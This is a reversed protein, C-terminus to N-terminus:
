RGLIRRAAGPGYKADFQDALAPNQQLMQVAAPPVNGADPTAYTPGADRRMANIVIERNKRKQELVTKNDGPQPFYQKNANDFEEPSIVAGSERRLQANIFDRRAQDFNQFDNSVMWNEAFDPIWANGRINQSWPDLGANGYKSLNGESQSMRDAFGAAKREDITAKPETIPIMGSRPAPSSSPGGNPTIPFKQGQANEGFVGQPTMFLIEGNPGTVTKGAGLQQAQEPTLMNSDMLGNLAQAEVSNGSFRFQGNGSGQRLPKMEGTRQNFLTNDDLKSWDQTPKGQGRYIVEPSGGGREDYRVLNGDVSSVNWKPQNREQIARIAQTLAGTDSAVAIASAEDYGGNKMLWEANKTRQAKAKRGEKGAAMMKAGYALSENPNSGQAWGLFMDGLAAGRDSQAFGNWRDLLGKPKERAQAEAPTDHMGMQAAKTV